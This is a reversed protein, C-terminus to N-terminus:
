RLALLAKALTLHTASPPITPDAIPIKPAQTSPPDVSAPQLPHWRSAGSPLLSPPNYLQQKEQTAVPNTAPVKAPDVSPPVSPRPPHPPLTPYQDHCPTSSPILCHQTNLPNSPTKKKFLGIAELVAVNDAHVDCSQDVISLNDLPLTSLSM